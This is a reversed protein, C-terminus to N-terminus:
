YQGVPPVTLSLCAGDAGRSSRTSCLARVHTERRCGRGLAVGLELRGSEDGAQLLAADQRASAERHRLAAEDDASVARSCGAAARAAIAAASPHAAGTLPSSLDPSRGGCGGILPRIMAQGCLRLAPATVRQTCLSHLTLASSSAETMCSYTICTVFRSAYMRVRIRSAVSCCVRRCGSSSM